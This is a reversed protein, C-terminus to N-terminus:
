KKRRSYFFYQARLINKFFIRSIGMYLGHVLSYILRNNSHESYYREIDYCKTRRLATIFDEDKDIEIPKLYNIKPKNLNNINIIIAADVARVLNKAIVRIRRSHAIEYNLQSVQVRLHESILRERDLRNHLKKYMDFFYSTCIPQSLVAAAYLFDTLDKQQEQAVYYENIGDFFVLKYNNKKLIVSWQKVVHTAEICLVQPRYKTWDNSKIVEYEFGEVDIKLFNIKNVKYKEFINKLPVVEVMYDIHKSTVSDSTSEYDNKMEKSFTSLGKGRLYERFNLIATNEAIGINLNNDRPRQSQLKEYYSKIPEINIGHWGRDYFFKTVSDHEPDNAGVDVYFGRKINKFFSDLLVDERNQAYSILFNEEVEEM